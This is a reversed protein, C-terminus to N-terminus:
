TFLSRMKPWATKSVDDHFTDVLYSTATLTSLETQKPKQTKEDSPTFEWSAPFM